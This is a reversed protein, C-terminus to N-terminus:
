GSLKLITVVLNHVINPHYSTKMISIETALLKENEANIEMKKIAVQKGNKVFTGLYVKGAASFLSFRKHKM